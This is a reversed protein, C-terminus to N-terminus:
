VANIVFYFLSWAIPQVIRTEFGLLVFFIKNEETTGQQNQPGGLRQEVTVPRRAKSYLSKPKFKVV